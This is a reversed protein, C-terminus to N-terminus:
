RRGSADWGEPLKWKDVWRISVQQCQPFNLNFETDFLPVTPRGMKLLLWVYRSDALDVPRWRCDMLGATFIPNCVLHWRADGYQM